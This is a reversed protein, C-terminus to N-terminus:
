DHQIPKVLYDYAGIKMCDVALQAENLATVMICETDPSTEKIIKLLNIGNMGPMTIDILAIDFIEGQQFLDAAANPDHETQPNKFGSIILGRKLTDLFDLEDDIVIIRHNM